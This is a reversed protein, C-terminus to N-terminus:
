GNLVVKALTDALYLAIGAYLACAISLLYRGDLLATIGVLLVVLSVITLGLMLVIKVM